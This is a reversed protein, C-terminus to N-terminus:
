KSPPRALEIRREDQMDTMTRGLNDVVHAHLNGAPKQSRTLIDIMDSLALENGGGTATTASPV